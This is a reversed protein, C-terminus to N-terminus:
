GGGQKVAEAIGKAWAVIADFDRFDGAPAKVNNLIWREFFNLKEADVSGHFCTIDRPQIRDAVPQLGKPFRWGQLLDEINGEGTPGSSFLWVKREALQSENDRLFRAAEKRWSGIYVSSGLVVAKYPTLDRVQRVPLVDAHLGADRLVEGIREAVGATAGYKTAYAVLVREEM